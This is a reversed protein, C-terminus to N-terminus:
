KIIEKGKFFINHFVGLNDKNQSVSADDPETLGLSEELLYRCRTYAVMTEGVRTFSMLLKQLATKSFCDPNFDIKKPWHSLDLESRRGMNYGSQYKLKYLIAPFLDFLLKMSEREVYYDPYFRVMSSDCYHDSFDKMIYSYVLYMWGSQNQYGEFLVDNPICSITSHRLKKAIKINGYFIEPTLEPLEKLAKEVRKVPEKDLLSM